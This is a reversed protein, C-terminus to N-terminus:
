RTDSFGLPLEVAPPNLITDTVTLNSVSASLSAVSQVATLFASQSAIASEKRHTTTPQASVSPTAAPATPKIQTVTKNVWFGVWGGLALVALVSLITKIISSGTKQKPPQVPPMVLPQEM